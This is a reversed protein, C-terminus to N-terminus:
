SSSSRLERRSLSEFAAVAARPPGRHDTGMNRSVFSFTGSERRSFRPSRQFFFARPRVRVPLDRLVPSKSDGADVLEVVRALRTFDLRGPRGSLARTAAFGAADRGAAAKPGDLLRRALREQLSLYQARQMPTLFSALDKQEAELLDARRRQAAVLQDLSQSIKNQDRGASDQMAARLALRAQHEDVNLARRQREFKTQAQRLQRM